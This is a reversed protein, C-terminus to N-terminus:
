HAIRIKRAQALQSLIEAEELVPHYDYIEQKVVKEPLTNFYHFSEADHKFGYVDVPGECLRMALVVGPCVM